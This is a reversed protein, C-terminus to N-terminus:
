PRLPACVFRLAGVCGSSRRPDGVGHRDFLLRLGLGRLDVRRTRHENWPNPCRGKHRAGRGWRMRFKAASWPPARRRRLRRCLIRRSLSRRGTARRSAGIRDTRRSCCRGQRRLERLQERLTAGRPNDRARAAFRDLIEMKPPRARGPIAVVSSTPKRAVRIEAITSRLHQAQSRPRRARHAPRRHINCSIRPSPAHLAMRHQQLTLDRRHLIKQAKARAIYHLMATAAPDVPDHNM